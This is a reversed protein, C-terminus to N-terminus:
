LPARRSLSSALFSTKPKSLLSSLKEYTGKERAEEYTGKERAEFAGRLNGEEAM